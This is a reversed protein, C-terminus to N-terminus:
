ILVQTFELLLFLICVGIRTLQTLIPTIKILFGILFNM